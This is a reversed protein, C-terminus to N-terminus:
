PNLTITLTASGSVQDTSGDSGTETYNFPFTQTFPLGNVNFAINGTFQAANLKGGPDYVGGRAPSFFDAPEIATTNPSCTSSPGTFKVPPFAAVPAAM